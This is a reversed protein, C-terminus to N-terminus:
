LAIAPTNFASSPKPDSPNQRCLKGAYFDMKSRLELMFLMALMFFSEPFYPCFITRVATEFM